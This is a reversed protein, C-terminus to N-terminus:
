LKTLTRRVRATREDKRCTRRWRCRGCCIAAGIEAPHVVGVVEGEKEKQRWPSAEPWNEARRWDPPVVPSTLSPWHGGTRGKGFEPGIDHQEVARLFAEGKLMSGAPGLIHAAGGPGTKGQEDQHEATKDMEHGAVERERRNAEAGSVDQRRFDSAEGRSRLRRYSRCSWFAPCGSTRPYSRAPPFDPSWFSLAVALPRGACASPFHWLFCVAERSRGFPLPSLTPYFGVAPRAVPSALCVGGPALGLLPHMQATKRGRGPHTARPMWCHTDWLFPQWVGCPAFLVRSVPRRTGKLRAFFTYLKPEFCRNSRRKLQLGCAKM